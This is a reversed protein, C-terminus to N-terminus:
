RVFALAMGDVEFVGQGVAQVSEAPVLYIEVRRNKAKGEKTANDAIPRYEGYGMVGMRTSPVQEQALMKMVSIARHASLHWNTKHERRTEPKAIPTSCTHGVVIVDLTSAEASKVIAAFEKLAQLVEPDASLQDSGLPFLLDSKWRVANGHKEIINPYKKALEELAKDVAPPLEREIITVGTPKDLQGLLAAQAEDYKRKWEDREKEFNASLLKQAALENELSSIKTDKQALASECALLEDQLAAHKEELTRHARQLAQHEALSVCGVSSWMVMVGLLAIVWFRNM